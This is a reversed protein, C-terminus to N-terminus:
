GAARLMHRNHTYHALRVFNCNLDKARSLLEVAETYSSARGNAGIAEEHISIGRLFQEKGNLKITQGEVEISRFGIRDVLEESGFSWKVEYLRPNEPSWLEPSAQIEFSAKGDAIALTEDIGLERVQLRATGTEAGNVTVWGEIRDQSGKALQVKYNEM